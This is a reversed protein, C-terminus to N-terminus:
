ALLAQAQQRLIFKQLATKVTQSYESDTLLIKTGAHKLMMAISDADLRINIANLVAGTMPVGFHAEYMAPINPLMVAVTDGTGIGRKNLASALRRCRIYTESWNRRTAGYVIATHLPYVSAAREIFTLPSLPTHNAPNKDLDTSYPNNQTMMTQPDPKADKGNRNVNRSSPTSVKGPM